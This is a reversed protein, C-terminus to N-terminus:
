YGSYGNFWNGVGINWNTYYPNSTPNFYNTAAPCGYSISGNSLRCQQAVFCQITGTTDCYPINSSTNCTAGRYSQAGNCTYRKDDFNPDFPTFGCNRDVWAWDVGVDGRYRGGNNGFDYRYNPANSSYSNVGNSLEITVFNATDARYRPCVQILNNSVVPCRDARWTCDSDRPMRSGDNCTRVEATCMIGVGNNVPCRDARWTCDPDRPMNSGDSCIRMEM